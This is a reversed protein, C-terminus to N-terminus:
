GSGASASSPQHIHPFSALSLSKAVYGCGRRRSRCRVARLRFCKRVRLPTFSPQVWTIVNYALQALLVLMEQAAFSRKNRRILGLGSKSGKITTEVGGGRLDYAHVAALLVETSTPNPCVPQRALWLLTLDTLNFVLARYQWDGNKKRKRIVV